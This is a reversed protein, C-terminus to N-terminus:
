HESGNPHKAAERAKEEEEKDEMSLPNNWKQHKIPCFHVIQVHVAQQKEMKPPIPCLRFRVEDGTKPIFEGDIDSIHVFLDEGGGEPTIFGHGRSRSFFKVKGRHIPYTLIRECMSNTRQRRTIIPSPLILGHATPSGEPSLPPEEFASNEPISM